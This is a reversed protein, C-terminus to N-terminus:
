LNTSYIIKLSLEAKPCAVNSVFFNQLRNLTAKGYSINKKLYENIKESIITASTV